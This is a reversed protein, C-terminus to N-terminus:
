DGQEQGGAAVVCGRRLLVRGGLLGIIEGDADRIQVALDRGVEVLLADQMGIARGIGIAQRGLAIKVGGMAEELHVKPSTHGATAERFEGAGNQEVGILARAGDKGGLGTASDLM